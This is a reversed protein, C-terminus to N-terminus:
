GKYRYRNYAVAAILLVTVITINGFLFFVIQNYIFGFLSNPQPTPRSIDRM